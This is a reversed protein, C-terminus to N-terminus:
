ITKAFKYCKIYVIVKLIIRILLILIAGIIKNSQIM